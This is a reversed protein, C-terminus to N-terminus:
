ETTGLVDQLVKNLDQIKYPKVIVGLFGYSKYASMVPDNAYGSSVIAKVAPDMKLLEQITDRGGMGGPITLDMIVVDIPKGMNLAAQYIELARAGDEATLIRDFGMRKLIRSTVDLIMEEDDVLLVQKGKVPVVPKDPSTKEIAKNTSAPLYIYFTTGEGLTSEVSILGGHNRIISYSTALGLGTGKQKTTFYPDFINKLYTDPIGIGQDSVSIKIYRGDRLSLENGADLVINSASIGITGGQPMAQNANVILNHVVQSIQGEDIEAYWLDGQINFESKVNSGSLAFHATNKLIEAVSKTAKVPAGGKAFTLLQHTLDKARICANEAYTLQSTIEEDDSANMKALSINGLIAALINNFDHAIGGALIGISELKQAIMQREEWRKQETIDRVVVMIAPKGEYSILGSTLECTKVSGNRCTLKIQYKSLHGQGSMRLKYRETAAERMEPAVVPLFKAGLAEEKTYGFIEYASRNVFKFVGDQIIGVGDAASEVLTEYKSETERLEKEAKLKAIVESLQNAMLELFERSSLPVQERTHSGVLLCGAIGKQEHIYIIAKCKLREQADLTDMKEANEQVGSYIPDNVTQSESGSQFKDVHFVSAAFGPSFGTEFAVNTRGASDSLYMAGCDMGSVEIAKETFLKLTKEMSTSTSLEMALDRQIRLISEAQKRESIDRGVGLFGYPKGRGDRLISIQNESWFTSGDKRYLELEFIRSAFSGPQEREQELVEQYSNMAGLLSDQTMQRNLPMTALEEMSFGRGRVSSPSLYTVNLDMDMTWVIDHVNEVLLRYATEQENIKSHVSELAELMTNIERSVSAIEDKGDVTLRRTHDGARAIERVDANLKRMPRVLMFYILLAGLIPMIIVGVLGAVMAYAYTQKGQNFIDRSETLELVLCPSGYIDNIIAYGAIHDDDIIKVSISDRDSSIGVAAETSSSDSLYKIGISEGTMTHLQDIENEDLFRGIILTGNPPQVGMSDRIPCVAILVPKGSLMLIGSSHPKESTLSILLDDAPLKNVFKDPVALSTNHILDFAKAFLVNGQKDVIAMLNLKLNKFSTDMMNDDIYKQNRDAVFNYTDDWEAWDHSTAELSKARSSLAYVASQVDKRIYEIELEGFGRFVVSRAVSDIVVYGILIVIVVIIFTRLNLSM